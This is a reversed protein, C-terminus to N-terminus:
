RHHRQPITQQEPAAEGAIPTRPSRPHMASSRTVTSSPARNVGAAVQRLWAPGDLVYGPPPFLILLHEGTEGPPPPDTQSTHPRNRQPGRRPAIGRHVQVATHIQLRGIGIQDACQRTGRRTSRLSKEQLTHGCSWLLQAPWMGGHQNRSPLQFWGHDIVDPYQTHYRPLLFQGCPM